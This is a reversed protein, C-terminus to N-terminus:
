SGSVTQIRQRFLPATKAMLYALVAAVGIYPAGPWFGNMGEWMGYGLMAWTGVVVFMWLAGIRTAMAVSAGIWIVGMTADLAIAVVPPLVDHRVGGLAIHLSVGVVAAFFLAAAAWRLQLDTRIEQPTM